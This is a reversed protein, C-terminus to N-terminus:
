KTLLMKKVQVFPQQGSEQPQVVFRTFYIGSALRSGDFTATYYGVEKMGDVLTAVERGLIDYVKLTVYSSAKIQYSITTSPNFPNPYNQSLCSETPIAIESELPNFEENQKFTGNVIQWEVDAIDNEILAILDKDLSYGGKLELLIDKAEQMKGNHTYTLALDVLVWKKDEGTIMKLIEGSLKIVTANDNELMKWIIMYRLALRGTETNAYNKKLGQLYNFFQLKEGLKNDV